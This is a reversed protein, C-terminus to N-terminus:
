FQRGKSTKNANAIQVNVATKNEGKRASSQASTFYVGGSVPVGNITPWLIDINKNNSRINQEHFNLDKGKSQLTGFKSCGEFIRSTRETYM